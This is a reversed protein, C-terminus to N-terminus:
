TLSANNIERNTINFCSKLVGEYADRRDMSKEKGSRKLRTLEYKKM